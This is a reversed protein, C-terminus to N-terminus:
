LLCESKEMPPTPYDGPRELRHRCKPIWVFSPNGKWNKLWILWCYSTASSGKPELRGKVMVVRECFQAIRYPPNVHFLNEYRSIGELFSTRVIIAVGSTARKLGQHVFEEALRFPPNTIVWNPQFPPGKPNLLFDEQADMGDFGYDHIDSAWVQSAYEKLPKVMHGRNCCPEWATFGRLRIVNELLARTAWPPTPFDDLSDHPEVRRQMVATSTNQKKM